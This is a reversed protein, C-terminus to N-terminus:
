IDFFETRCFSCSSIINNGEGSNSTGSIGYVYMAWENFPQGPDYHSLRKKSDCAYKYDMGNHKSPFPEAAALTCNTYMSQRMLGLDKDKSDPIISYYKLSM